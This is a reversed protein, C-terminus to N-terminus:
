PLTTPQAPLVSNDTRPVIVWHPNAAFDPTNTPDAGRLWADAAAAGSVGDDVGMAMGGLLYSKRGEPGQGSGAAYAPFGSGAYANVGNFWDQDYAGIAATWTPYFGGGGFPEVAIGYASVIQPSGSDNIMGIQMQLTYAFLPKAAFGLEAARGIAYVLYHNMWPYTITGAASPNSGSNSAYLEGGNQGEYGPPSTPTLTNVDRDACPQKPDCSTVWQSLVPPVLNCCPDAASPGQNSYADVNAWNKVGTGDFPTGTIKMEGEHRAIQANTSDIFYTKQPDGDPILFALEAFNRLPWAVARASQEVGYIANDAGTPGRGQPFNAESSSPYGDTTFNTYGDWMEM